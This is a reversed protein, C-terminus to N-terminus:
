DITRDSWRTAIRLAIVGIGGRKRAHFRGTAFGRRCFLIVGRLRDAGVLLNRLLPAAEKAVTGKAALGLVFLVVIKSWSGILGVAVGPVVGAVWGGGIGAGRSWADGAAIKGLGGAGFGDIRAGVELEVNAGVDKVYSRWVRVASRWTGCSLYLGLEVIEIGDGLSERVEFADGLLRGRAYGCVAVM